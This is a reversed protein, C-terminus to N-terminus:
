KYIKHSVKTTNFYHPLIQLDDLSLQLEHKTISCRLLVCVCVYMCLANLSNGVFNRTPLQASNIYGCELPTANPPKQREKQNM